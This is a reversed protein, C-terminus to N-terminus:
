WMTWATFLFLYIFSIGSTDRNIDFLVSKLLFIKNDRLIIFPDTWPSSIIIVLM